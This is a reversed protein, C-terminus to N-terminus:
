AILDDEIGASVRGQDDPRLSERAAEVLVKMTASPVYFWITPFTHEYHLTEKSMFTAYLLNQLKEILDAPKKASIEVEIAIKGHKASEVVADPIPGTSQGKKGQDLGARYVRESTWEFGQQDMWLRIQNVAYIHPLRTVAPAKATFTEDLGILQLGRKTVWAYGRGDALFRHYEVWGAKQWRSLVDKTTTEAISKGNVFPKHKDPFRSLLKQIQDFRAAYMQAIWKLCYIDRITAMFHGKDSRQKREGTGKKGQADKSM